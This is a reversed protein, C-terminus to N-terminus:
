GGYKRRYYHRFILHLLGLACACYALTFGAQSFDAYGSESLVILVFGILVTILAFVQVTMASAKEHILHIREDVIVEEVRRRLLLLVGLGVIVAIVPLVLDGVSISWMVVVGLVLAVIVECWAFQKRNM